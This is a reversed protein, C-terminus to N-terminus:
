GTAVSLKRRRVMRPGHMVADAPPRRECFGESPDSALEELHRSQTQSGILRSPQPPQIWQDALRQERREYVGLEQNPGGVPAECAGLPGQAAPPQGSLQQHAWEREGSRQDAERSRGRRAFRLGAGRPAVIEWAQPVVRLHRSSGGPTFHAATLAM